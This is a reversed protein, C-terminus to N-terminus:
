RWLGHEHVLWGQIMGIVTIIPFWARRFAVRESGGVWWLACCCLFPVLILAYRGSDPMFAGPFVVRSGAFAALLVLSLPLRRRGLILAILGMFIWLEHTLITAVRYAWRLPRLGIQTAAAGVLGPPMPSIHSAIRSGMLLAADIPHAEVWQEAARLALKGDQHSYVYEQSPSRAVGDNWDFNRNDNFAWWMVRNGLDGFLRFEGTLRYNRFGWPLVLLLAALIVSLSMLIVRRIGHRRYLTVSWTAVVVLMVLLYDPRLYLAAGFLVGAFCGFLLRCSRQASVLLCIAGVGLTLAPLDPLLRFVFTDLESVALELLALVPVRAAPRLGPLLLWWLGAAAAAGCVAFLALPFYRCGSEGMRCGVAVIAAMGPMKDHRPDQLYTGTDALAKGWKLYYGPDGSWGQRPTYYVVILIRLALAALVIGWVTRSQWISKMTSKPASHLKGSDINPKLATAAENGTNSPRDHGRMVAGTHTTKTTFIFSAAFGNGHPEPAGLM